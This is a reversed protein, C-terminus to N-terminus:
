RLGYLYLFAAWGSPLMTVPSELQRGYKVAMELFFKAHFFAELIPRTETLWNANTTEMSFKRDSGEQFIGEFWPNLAAAPLLGKLAAVIDRTSNQVFFVKFSQHYFRYVGDEYIWENNTEALLTELKPVDRKLAVVLERERTARNEMQEQLKDMGIGTRNCWYLGTRPM